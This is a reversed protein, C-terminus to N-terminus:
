NDHSQQGQPGRECSTAKNQVATANFFKPSVTFGKLNGRYGKRTHKHITSSSGFSFLHRRCPKVLDPGHSSCNLAELGGIM